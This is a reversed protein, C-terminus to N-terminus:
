IMIDDVQQKAAPHRSLMSPINSKTHSLYQILPYIIGNDNGETMVFSIAIGVTGARGTRGIRHCYIEITKPMDYNIVYNVGSIDLGRGAVDTAILININNNRFLDLTNERDNQSRGGHLIGINNINNYNCFINLSEVEKKLNVFIIIKNNIFNISNLIELLKQRKKSETIMYIKQEIRDNKGSKEDGIKIICPEILYNYALHEVEPIMTASFMNMIIDKKNLEHDNEKIANLIIQMEKDFGMDLMRDAEDIIMYKCQNLVLYNNELCDVLRGPTGIIIDIGNRLKYSQEQISQGGVISLTKYNTYKIFKICEKEIQLVLERTPALILVLPGHSAVQNLLCQTVKTLMYHLMPIIYAATKGSGTESIGIIDMGLIGIPITQRQIPTPTDYNCDSIAKLLSNHLSSENWYRLPLFLNINKHFNRIENKRTPPIQITINFDEKFIRWDRNTMEYLKKKTWHIYNSSSPMSSSSSSSPTLSSSVIFHHNYLPNEDSMNNFTDEEDDWDFNMLKSKFEKKMNMPNNNKINNNYISTTTVTTDANAFPSITKPKKNVSDSMWVKHCFEETQKRKLPSSSSSSSSLINERGEGRDRKSVFHIVKDKNKNKHNNKTKNGSLHNNRDNFKNNSITNHKTNSYLIKNQKQQQKNQRRELAKAEAKSAIIAMRRAEMEEEPSLCDRNLINLGCDAM